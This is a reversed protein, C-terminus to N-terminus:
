AGLSRLVQRAAREGSEVGGNLYGQSHTSTHEGAFVVHRERRELFGWFDTYRGPGFGAYSGRAWPDDVWSSLYAKGNFARSLGVVGRELNSLTDEVVRPPAPGRPTDTPYRAGERGGNFVTLVPM